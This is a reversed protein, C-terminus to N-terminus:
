VGLHCTFKYFSSKVDKCYSEDGLSIGITMLCVDHYQTNERYCLTADYYGLRVFDKQVESSISFTEALLKGGSFLLVLLTVFWFSFFVVTFVHDNADLVALRIRRHFLFIGRHRFFDYQSLLYWIVVCNVVFSFILGILLIEAMVDFFDYSYFFYLFNYFIAIVYWIIMLKYAWFKRQLIGKIMFVSIGLFVFNFLVVFPNLAMIQPYLLPVLLGVVFQFLALLGTYWLIVRVGAPFAVPILNGFLTKGLWVMVRTFLGVGVM